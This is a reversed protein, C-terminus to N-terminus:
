RRALTWRVSRGICTPATLTSRARLHRSHRALTAAGSPDHHSLSGNSNRREYVPSRNHPSMPFGLTLYRSRTARECVKTPPDLKWVIPAATTSRRDLTWDSGSRVGSVASLLAEVRFNTVLNAQPLVFSLRSAFAITRMDCVLSNLAFLVTHRRSRLRSIDTIRRSNSDASHKEKVVMSM